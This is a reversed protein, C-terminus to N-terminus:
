NKGMIRIHETTFPLLAIHRARKIAVAVRRQHRACLGSKRRPYISGNDAVFRRLNDVRKWNIVSTKDACFMCVKRRHFRGRPHFSQPSRRTDRGPPRRRQQSQQSRDSSGSFPPRRREEQGGGEEQNDTEEEEVDLPENAM